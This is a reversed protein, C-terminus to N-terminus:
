TDDVGAGGLVAPIWRDLRAAIAATAGTLLHGAGPVVVLEGGGALARVTESAGV